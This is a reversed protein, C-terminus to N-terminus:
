RPYEWKPILGPKAQFWHVGRLFWGMEDDM